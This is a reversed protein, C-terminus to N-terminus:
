RLVQQYLDRIRATMYHHDFVERCRTQGARGQRQRLELDAALQLLKQTLGATDGAAVLGGTVGDLCVERAGDIDFSVVPVGALLAQPLVRALGERLSTHVVVDMAAILDPIQNPAVLGTLVFHDSLGRRDIERVIENTKTGNGVLLYKVRPNQRIVESASHLLYEHGKLPALRAIKGIVLDDDRLNWRRRTAGRQQHAEVFPRVDMGSYITTFKERPAVRAAVMLDTMADAVSILHHCRKAAYWELWRFLWYGIRNQYPHFPAGHVTHIVAPIRLQWAALRGLFGGKASHTHVVDPQYSRLAALLERYAGWDHWPHINRRLCPLVSIQISRRDEDSLGDL